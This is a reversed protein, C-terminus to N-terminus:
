TLKTFFARPSATYARKDTWLRSPWRVAAAPYLLLVLITRSLSAFCCTAAAPRVGADRRMLADCCEKRCASEGLCRLGFGLHTYRAHRRLIFFLFSAIRDSIPVLGSDYCMVCMYMYRQNRSRMQVSRNSRDREHSMGPTSYTDTYHQTSQTM